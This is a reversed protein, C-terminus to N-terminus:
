AIQKATALADAAALDSPYWGLVHKKGVAREVAQSFADFWQQKSEVPQKAVKLRNYGTVKHAHKEASEHVEKWEDITEPIAGWHLLKGDASAAWHDVNFDKIATYSKTFAVAQSDFGFDQLDTPSMKLPSDSGADIAMLDGSDFATMAIIDIDKIPYDPKHNQELFSGTIYVGKVGTMARIVKAVEEIYPAVDKITPMSRSYWNDM